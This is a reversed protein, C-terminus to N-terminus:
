EFTSASAGINGSLFASKGYLGSHSVAVGFTIPERDIPRYCCYDFCLGSYSFVVVGRGDLKSSM